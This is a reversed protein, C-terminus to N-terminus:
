CLMTFCSLAIIANLLFHVLECGLFNIIAVLFKSPPLGLRAVMHSEFYVMTSGDVTPVDVESISSELGGTLWSSSHYAQRDVETITSKKWFDSMDPITKDVIKAAAANSSTSVALCDSETGSDSKSEDVVLEDTAHLIQDVESVM